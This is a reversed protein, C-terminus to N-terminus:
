VSDAGIFEVLSEYSGKRNLNFVPINNVSALAIALGTGGTKTTYQEITTCGDPTWCIVFDSPTHLDKGLVQHVNRAMLKHVSPKLHKWAFHLEAAVKFCNPHQEYLPSPNDNFGLWPLYIEKKGTAEDCGLEFASDAGAAAGSRLIYGNDALRVALLKMNTLVSTPTNRSGIGTYFKNM